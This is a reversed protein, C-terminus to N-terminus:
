HKTMFHLLVTIRPSASDGIELKAHGASDPKTYSPGGSTGVFRRGAVIITRGGFGVGIGNTISSVNYKFLQTFLAPALRMNPKKHPLVGDFVGIVNM